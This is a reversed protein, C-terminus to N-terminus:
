QASWIISSVKWNALIDNSPVLNKPGSNALLVILSM